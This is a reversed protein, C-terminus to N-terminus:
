PPDHGGAPEQDALRACFRATVNRGDRNQGERVDAGVFLDLWEDAADMVVNEGMQVLDCAQLRYGAGGHHFVFVRVPIQPLDGVLQPDGVYQFATNLPGPISHSNIHLENVGLGVCM